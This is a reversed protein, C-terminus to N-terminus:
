PNNGMSFKDYVTLLTEKKTTGVATEPFVLPFTSLIHAFDDRSLGYLHAIIADLEDRLQQRNAATNASPRKWAKGTVTQWLDAFAPTTCTLAAARKVISDFPQSGSTLRPIPLQKLIFININTAVKLRIIYDLVFSNFLSVLYLSEAEPTEKTITLLSNAAAAKPPLMTSILTRADTTRAIARIAPRYHTQKLEKERLWFRPKAHDINFQHIMKGEYLPVGVDVVNFLHRTSTMHFESTLKINWSNEFQDYLFPRKEYIKQSIAYDIQSPFEMVSLSTPSFQAISNQQIYVLNNENALFHHLEEPRIAVRPNFRFAAWFGNSDVGKQAGLITFKIRHDIGHFFFRENSFNYLYELRGDNLLMARLEKTGLDTYIGSPIVFGLRGGSQLLAYGRETFLKHTATDGRGQHSYSNSKKYYTGAERIYTKQREWRTALEPDAANLDAIHQEAQKRTLKSEILSDFQAYYERLDPKVIEWPPNGVVITFGGKDGLLQGKEDLFLEPFAVAWNMPRIHDEWAEQSFYATLPANLEKNIAASLQEAQAMEDAHNSGNKGSALSLRLQRLAALQEAHDAYRPDDAGAGILANGVKVNQNLILPLRADTGRQDAMARMILNVTAIEAAQPDLDTGYLHKELIIRPYNELYKLAVTYPTLQLELDFLLTVGSAVLADYRAVREQTIREIESRYFNALVEYAYILFSGSGCAPDIVSLNAIQEYTKRQDGEGLYRELSSDVIYRVIVQPTYYSGQKKRTELNDLTTIEIPLNPTNRNKIALAKGLFQEYTNGMIDPTMARYRAEYLKDVLDILTKNSFDAKDALHPAFLASNHRSDFGRFIQRLHESLTFTYINEHVLKAVDHLMGASAILHDEAYRIIVMRDLVRQVVTRLDALRLSGDNNFVWKNQLPRKVLDQALKLRWDNIFNLYDTDVDVRVRQNNLAELGGKEVNEYALQWLHDFNELYSRPEEFSLVMWDRRANFLRLKEFNTLIAWKGNNKFAYNIAQQEEPSRDAAMGPLAMQGPTVIGSLTNRFVDLRKIKGFRKAEVFIRLGNDLTLMMDPRGAITHHEYSYHAPEGIPWGLAALLPDIFQRVVSAETIEKKEDPTLAHYKSILAEIEKKAQQKTITM